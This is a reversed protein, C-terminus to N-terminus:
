YLIKLRGGVTGLLARNALEPPINTNLQFGNSQIGVLERTENNQERNKKNIDQIFEGFKDKTFIVPISPSPGFLWVMQNKAIQSVSVTPTSDIKVYMLILYPLAELNTIHAVAEPKLDDFMTWSADGTKTVATFHPNKLAPGAPTELPLTKEFDVYLILSQLNYDPFDPFVENSQNWTCYKIVLIDAIGVDGKIEEGPVFEIIISVTKGMATVIQTILADTIEPDANTRQRKNVMRGRRSLVQEPPTLAAALNECTPRIRPTNTRVFGILRALEPLEANPEGPFFAVASVLASYACKHDIQRLNGYM